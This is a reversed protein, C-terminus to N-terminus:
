AWADSFTLQGVSDTSGGTVAVIVQNAGPALRLWPEIVHGATLAFGQWAESGNNLVTKNSCDIILSQGGSITGTYTFGCIDTIGISLATIDASGATVTIGCDDVAVNGNNTITYFPSGDLTFSEDTMDLWLGNDFLYGADLNWIGGHAHGYWRSQVAFTLVFQVTARDTVRMEPSVNLLRAWVWRDYGDTTHLWLRDRAGRRARLADLGIRIQTTNTAHVVLGTYTLTYPLELPAVDSGAADFSGGLTRMTTTRTQAPWGFSGRYGPIATTGFQYLYFPASTTM